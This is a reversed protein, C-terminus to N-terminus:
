EGIICIRCPIKNKNLLKRIIFRTKEWYKEQTDFVFIMYPCINM